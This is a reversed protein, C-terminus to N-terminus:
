LVGSLGYVICLGVFSQISIFHEAEFSSRRRTILTQGNRVGVTLIYTISNIHPLPSLPTRSYEAIMCFLCHGSKNVMLIIEPGNGMNILPLICNGLIIIHNPSHVWSLNKIPEALQGIVHSHRILQTYSRAFKWSHTQLRAEGSTSYFLLFM